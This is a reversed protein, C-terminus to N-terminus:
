SLQEVDAGHRADRGDAHPDIAVPGAKGDALCATEPASHPSLPVHEGLIQDFDRDTMGVFRGERIWPLPKTPDESDIERALRHADFIADAVQPRPAVCDGVRFLGEIGAEALREPDQKLERYLRSNPVRQTVLVVGDTKWGIRIASHARLHGEVGTRRVRDVVHETVMSVGLEHLRSIM